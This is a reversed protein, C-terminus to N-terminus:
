ARAAFWAASVRFCESTTAAQEPLWDIGCGPVCSLLECHYAGDFLRIQKDKAAASDYLRQSLAHDTIKDSRGHLVLFPTRVETLRAGMWAPFEFAMSWATGLRPKLGHMSLPNLKVYVFGQDPVRFDWQTMDKSPSIPWYPFLRVLVHKFFLIVLWHPLLEDSVTLMPAVLVIGSFFTPRQVSLCALIGGGMSIGMGFVKLPGGALGQAYEVGLEVSEWIQSIFSWWSPVYTYLGDTRGHSPLDLMAVMAGKRAQSVATPLYMDSCSTYGHFFVVLHSPERDTPVLVQCFVRFGGKLELLKKEVRLGVTDLAAVACPSITTDIPYLARRQEGTEMHAVPRLVRRRVLWLGVGCAVGVLGLLEASVLM